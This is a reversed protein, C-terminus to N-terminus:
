TARGPQSFTESYEPYEEAVDIGFYRNAVESFPMRLVVNLDNIREGPPLQHNISKGLFLPIEGGNGLVAAVTDAFRIEQGNRRAENAKRFHEQLRVELYAKFQEIKAPDFEAFHKHEYKILERRDTPVPEFGPRRERETEPTESVPETGSAEPRVGGAGRLNSLKRYKGTVNEVGARDTEDFVFMENVTKPAFRDEELRDLVSDLLEREERWESGVFEAQSTDGEAFALMKRAKELSDRAERELAERRETEDAQKAELLCRQAWTMEECASADAYKQTPRDTTVLIGEKLDKYGATAEHAAEPTELDDPPWPLREVGMVARIDPLGVKLESEPSTGSGPDPTMPETEAAHKVM